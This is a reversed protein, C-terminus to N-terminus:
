VYGFARCVLIQKNRLRRDGRAQTIAFCVPAEDAKQDARLGHKWEDCRHTRSKRTHWLSKQMQWRVGRPLSAEQRFEASVYKKVMLATAKLNPYLDPICQELEQTLTVCVANRKAASNWQIRRLSFNRCIKALYAYFYNPRQPPITEWATMYTDSVSEEADQSSHLIKDSVAFLRRGYVADTERIADESREWFLAIIQSDTM